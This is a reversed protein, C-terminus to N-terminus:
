LIFGALRFHNEAFFTSFLCVSDFVLLTVVVLQVKAPQEVIVVVLNLVQPIIIFSLSHDFHM